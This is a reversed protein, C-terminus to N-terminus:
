EGETRICSHIHVFDVRRKPVGAHLVRFELQHDIAFADAVRCYGDIIGADKGADFLVQVVEGVEADCGEPKSRYQFVVHGATGIVAIGGCVVVLYVRAETGVFFVLLQNFFGMCAADFDYHVHNEVVAAYLM